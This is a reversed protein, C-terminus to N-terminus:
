MKFYKRSDEAVHGKSETSEPLDPSDGGVFHDTGYLFRLQQRQKRAVAKEL